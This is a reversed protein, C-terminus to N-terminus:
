FILRMIQRPSRLFGCSVETFITSTRSCGLVIYFWSFINYYETVWDLNSGPIELIRTCLRVMVCNVPTDENVRYVNPHATGYSLRNVATEQNPGLDPWTPNPGCFSAPVPERWTSRNGKGIRRGGVAGYENIVRDDVSSV